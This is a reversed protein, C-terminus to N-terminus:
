GPSVSALEFGGSGSGFAVAVGDTRPHRRKCRAARQGLMRAGDIGAPSTDCGCHLWAVHRSVAVLLAQAKLAQVLIQLFVEGVEEGFRAELHAGFLAREVRAKAFVERADDLLVAGGPPGDAATEREEVLHRACRQM